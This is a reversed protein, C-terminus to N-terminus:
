RKNANGLIEPDKDTHAKAADLVRIYNKKDMRVVYSKPIDQEHYDIELWHSKSKTLMLAAGLGIPATAITGDNIRHQKTFEYSFKDIQAYPISVMAEPHKRQKAVHVEVAKRNDSFTLVAKRLNGKADPVNIRHFTTEEGAALACPTLCLLLIATIKSVTKLTYRFSVVTESSLQIGM